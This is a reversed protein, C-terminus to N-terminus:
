FTRKILCTAWQSVRQKCLEAEYNFSMIWMSSFQMELGFGPAVIDLTKGTGRAIYPGQCDYHVFGSKFKEGQLVSRRVFSVTASPRFFGCNYPICGIASLGFETRLLHAHNAKVRLDLSRAKYERHGDQDVFDYDISAFPVLQMGCLNFNFGLGIHSLIAYGRYRNRASRHIGCPRKRKFGKHCRQRPLCKHCGACCDEDEECCDELRDCYFDNLLCDLRSYRIKRKTKYFEYSGLVAADIYFCDYISSAYAGLYGTHWDANGYAKKWHLDTYSYGLGFGVNTCKNPQSDIGMMIGPTTSRYGHLDGIHAQNNFVGFPTIWFQYPGINCYDSYLGKFQVCHKHRLFANRGTLMQRFAQMNQDTAFTIDQLLAPHMQDLAEIFGESDLPLHHIAGALDSGPLVVLSDIYQEVRLPNGELITGPPVPIPTILAEATTHLALAALFYVAKRILFSTM